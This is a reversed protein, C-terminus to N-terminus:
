HLYASRYIEHSDSWQGNPVSALEYSQVRRLERSEGVRKFNAADEQNSVKRRHASRSPTSSNILEEQKIPASINEIVHSRYSQM